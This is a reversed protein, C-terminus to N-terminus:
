DKIFARELTPVGCIRVWDSGYPLVKSSIETFCEEFGYWSHNEFRASVRRKPRGTLRRSVRRWLQEKHFYLDPPSNDPPNNITYLLSPTGLLRHLERIYFMFCEKKMEQFSHINIGLLYGQAPLKDIEWTPLSVFNFDTLSTETNSQLSLTESVRLAPFAQRIVQPAFALSTPVFDVSVYHCRAGFHALFFLALRGYGGGIEIVKVSKLNLLDVGVTRCHNVIEYFQYLGSQVDLTDSNKFHRTLGAVDPHPNLFKTKRPYGDGIWHLAELHRKKLVREYDRRNSREWHEHLICGANSGYNERVLPEIIAMSQPSLTIKGFDIVKEQPSDQLLDLRRVM